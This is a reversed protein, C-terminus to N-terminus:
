RNRGAFRSLSDAAISRAEAIRGAIPKAGGAEKEMEQLVRGLGMMGLNLATGRLSHLEAAVSSQDGRRDADQLFEWRQALGGGFEDYLAAVSDVGITDTLDAIIEDDYLNKKISPTDKPRWREILALLHQREIPKALYDNMGAALYRERDGAMVHATLAVIVADCFPPPLRRIRATADIGNCAPMEGDMLILDYSEKGAMAVAQNGDGALHVQHGLKELIRSAVQQNIPHDEALLILLPRRLSTPAEDSSTPLAASAPADSPQLPVEFWFHSGQTPVSNVGIMGGLYDVIRKSIALGLGTGGYRRTISPDAQTFMSFLRPQAALPIGIGSDKVDIRLWHTGDRLAIDAEIRVEGQETFKAANGALNLLVQRLRGADSRYFGACNASIDSFLAIPRGVLRPRLLDCVGAILDAVTFNDIELTIQGNEIRSIDLIDNVVRLLAESSMRVTEAFRRQEQTLDTDLMLSTMGLIGNMPTRLEHSLTAVFESKARNEAESRIKRERLRSRRASHAIAVLLADDLPKNLCYFCGAEIGARIQAGSQDATLLIVPLSAGSQLSAVLSMAERGPLPSDLIVADFYDDSAALIELAQESDDTLMVQFDAQELSLGIQERCAPDGAIVLIYGATDKPRLAIADRRQSVIGNIDPPIPVM